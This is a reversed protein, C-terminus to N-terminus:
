EYECDINLHVNDKLFLALEKNPKIMKDFMQQATKAFINEAGVPPTLGLCLYDDITSDMFFHPNLFLISAFHYRFLDCIYTDLLNMYMPRHQNFVENANNIMLRFSNIHMNDDLFDRMKSYRDDFDFHEFLSSYSKSRRFYKKLNEYKPTKFIGNTWEKFREAVFPINQPDWKYHEKCYVMMYVDTLIEDFYKRVIAFANNIYANDLLLKISDITGRISSYIYNNINPYIEYPSNSYCCYPCDSLFDYFNYICDITEFIKNEPYEKTLQREQHEMYM